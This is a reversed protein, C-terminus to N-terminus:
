DLVKQSLHVIIQLYYPPHSLQVILTQYHLFQVILLYTIQDRVLRSPGLPRHLPLVGTKTGTPPHHM